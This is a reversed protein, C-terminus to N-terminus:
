WFKYWSKQAQKAKEIAEQKRRATEEAQAKKEAQKRDIVEVVRAMAAKEKRRQMQCYEWQVICGILFSGFGWNAAKPISAGFVMRGMGLVAGSGIGTMFGERACPIKHVNLWEDRKITQFAETVTAKQPTAQTQGAEGDQASGEAPKTGHFVEYVQPNKVHEPPETAGPPPERLRPPSTDDQAM